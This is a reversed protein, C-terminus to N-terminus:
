STESFEKIVTLFAQGFQAAKKEGIGSVTLMQSLSTPEAEALNMLVQDSFIMFPPLALTKAFVARQKRLLEFLKGGVERKSAVSKQIAAAVKIERMM